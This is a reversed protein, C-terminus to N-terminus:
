HAGRCDLPGLPAARQSEGDRDAGAWAAGDWQVPREDFGLEEGGGREKEAARWQAASHRREVTVHHLATAATAAISCGALCLCFSAAEAEDESPVRSSWEVVRRARVRLVVCIADVQM